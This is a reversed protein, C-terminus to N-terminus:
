PIILWTDGNEMNTPEVTGIWEISAYGSPRAADADDDHMVVGKAYTAPAFSEISATAATGLDAPKVYVSDHSHPAPSFTNPINQLDNYSGTTAVNALDATNAKAALSGTSKLSGDENHEVRLYENLVTGWRGADGDPRPLRPM